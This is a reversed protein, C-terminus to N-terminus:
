DEMDLVHEREIVVADAEGVAHVCAIVVGDTITLFRHFTHAPIRVIAPARFEGLDEDGRWVRVSGSVIISLHPHQHAHQPLLSGADAVTWTKAYIGAYIAIETTPQNVARKM